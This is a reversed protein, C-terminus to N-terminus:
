QITEEVPASDSPQAMMAMLMELWSPAALAEEPVVIEVPDNYNSYIVTSDTEIEMEIDSMEGVPLNMLDDTLTLAMSM